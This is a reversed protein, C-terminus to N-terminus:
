DGGILHKFATDYSVKPFTTYFSDESCNLVEIPNFDYTAYLNVLATPAIPNFYTNTDDVLTEIPGVKIKGDISGRHGHDDQRYYCEKAGEKFGGDAGFLVISSAKSIIAMQILVLLSNSVTFTLPDNTSPVTKEFTLDFFILKENHNDFFLQIKFGIDILLMFTDRWFSSIFVNDEDRDLFHIIDNMTNPIGERSSCMIVSFRKDIQQLIHSEQVTYSNMGFYCIDADRLEEIRHELECISPGAVLIAVSRGAVITQLREIREEADLLYEKKQFNM